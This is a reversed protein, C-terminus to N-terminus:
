KAAALEAPQEPQAVSGDSPQAHFEFQGNEDLVAKLGGVQGGEAMVALVHSSLRPLLGRSLIYEINRAGSEVETCRSAIAEVLTDDWSLTANYNEAFRKRIRGLQRTAREQNAALVGETFEIEINKPELGHQDCAWFLKDDFGPESLNLPSANISITMAHGRDTMTRTANLANEIVWDTLPHILARLGTEEIARAVAAGAGASFHIEFQAIPHPGVPRDTMRGIFLIPVVDEVMLEAFKGRLTEAAARESAEYYIHAHWPANDNDNM